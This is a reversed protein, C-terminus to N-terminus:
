LHTNQEIFFDSGLIPPIRQKLYFKRTKKDLERENFSIFKNIDGEFFNLIEDTELWYPKIKQKAYYQYSSWQYSKDDSTINAESPNKHIYRIVNMLYSGNEVLISKYRSRFLPGDRKTNRNFKLVYNGSLYKMAQGLNASPTRLLLHYHNNMLCYGHIEIQFDESIKVLLEQFTEKHSNNLFINQHDAGRNMVHYWANKIELRIPRPM